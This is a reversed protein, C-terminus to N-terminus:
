KNLMQPDTINVLTDTIMVLNESLQKFDEIKYRSTIEDLAKGLQNLIEFYGKQEFEYFKRAGDLGIQKIIPTLDKLLDTLSELTELVM